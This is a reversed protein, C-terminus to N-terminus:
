GFSTSHSVCRHSQLAMKFFPRCILMNTDASTNETTVSLRSFILVFTLWITKRTYVKSKEPYEAAWTWHTRWALKESLRPQNSSLGQQRVIKLFTQTQLSSKEGKQQGSHSSCEKWGDPLQFLVAPIENPKTHWWHIRLTSNELGGISIYRVKCLDDKTEWLLCKITRMSTSNSWESSMNKSILSYKVQILFTYWTKFIVKEM